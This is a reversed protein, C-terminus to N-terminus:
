QTVSGVEIKMDIPADDDADGADDDTPEFAAVLLSDLLLGMDLVFFELLLFELLLDLLSGKDVLCFELLGIESFAV